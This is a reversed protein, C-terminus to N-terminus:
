QLLGVIKSTQEEIMDKCDVCCVEMAKKTAEKNDKNEAAIQQINIRCPKCLNRIMRGYAATIKAKAWLSLKKEM